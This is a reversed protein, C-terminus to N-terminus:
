GGVALDMRRWVGGSAAIGASWRWLERVLYQEIQVAHGEIQNVACDCELAVVGISLTSKPPLHKSTDRNIIKGLPKVAQIM